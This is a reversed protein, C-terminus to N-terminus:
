LWGELLNCKEKRDRPGGDGSSVLSLINEKEPPQQKMPKRERKKSPSQSCRLTEEPVLVRARGSNQRNM